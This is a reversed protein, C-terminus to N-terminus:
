PCGAAPTHSCGTAPACADVTCANKDDCTVVQAVPACEVVAALALGPDACPPPLSAQWNSLSCTTRGVCGSAVWAAVGAAACTPNVIPAPGGTASTCGVELKGYAAQVVRTVAMGSPCTLVLPAADKAEGCTTPRVGGCQGQSCADGVTCANGDNCPASTATSVCKGVTCSDATCANGDDCALPTHLCNGGDDCGEVTCANGDDPCPTTTHTCGLAPSCDDLTCLQGDNCNRPLHSCVGDACVDDTCADHDSCSQLPATGAQCEGSACEGMEVAADACGRVCPTGKSALQQVCQGAACVPKGCQNSAFVTLCDNDSSCAATDAQKCVKDICLGGNCVSDDLCPTTCIGDVCLNSACEDSAECSAYIGRMDNKDYCGLLPWTALALLVHRLSTM